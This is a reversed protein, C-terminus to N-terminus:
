CLLQSGQFLLFNQWCVVEPNKSCSKEPDGPQGDIRCVKSKGAEVVTHILERFYIERRMRWWSRERERGRKM